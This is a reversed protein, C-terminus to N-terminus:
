PAVEESPSSAAYFIRTEEQDAVVLDDLGDGDADGAVIRLYRDLGGLEVVNWDPAAPPEPWDNPSPNVLRAGDGTLVLIEHFRDQDADLCAFDYIPTEPSLDLEVRVLREMSLELPGAFRHILLRAPSDPEDDGAARSLMVLQEAGPTISDALLECALVRGNSAPPSLDASAVSSFDTPQCPPADPYGLPDRCPLTPTAYRSLPLDLAGADGEPSLRWDTGDWRGIRYLSRRGDDARPAVAVLEDVGDGDVDIAAFMGREWIAEPHPSDPAQLPETARLAQEPHFGRVLEPVFWLEYDSSPDLAELTLVALQEAPLPRGSEDVAFHGPVIRRSLQPRFEAQLPDDGSLEMLGLPSRLERDGRGVFGHVATPQGDIRGVALADSAGDPIGELSLVLDSTMRGAVLRLEHETQGLSVPPEPPRFPAGFLVSIEHLPKDRETCQRGVDVRIGLVDPLTDGDFDGLRLQTMPSGTPVTYPTLTAAGTGNYFVATAAGPKVVFVDVLGNGNFDAILAESWPEGRNVAALDEVTYLESNLRIDRPTVVDIYRTGDAAAGRISGLALIPAGDLVLGPLPAFYNDGEDPSTPLTNVDSHFTGNGVGYAIRSEFCEGYGCDVDDPATVQVVLDLHGDDNLDVAFPGRRVAREVRLIRPLDAPCSPPTLSCTNPVITDGVLRCPNFFEVQSKDTYALVIDDCPSQDREDFQAILAPASLESPSGRTWTMPVFNAADVIVLSSLDGVTTHFALRVVQQEVASGLPLVGLDLLGAPVRFAPLSEPMLERDDNAQLSVMGMRPVILDSRQVVPDTPAAGGAGCEGSSPAQPTRAVAAPLFLPEFVQRRVVPPEGRPAGFLVALEEDLLRIVDLRRDGDLDGRVLEDAGRSLQVAAPAFTSSHGRCLGDLGCRM